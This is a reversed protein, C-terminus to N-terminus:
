RLLKKIQDASATVAVSKRLINVQMSVENVNKFDKVVGTLGVFPGSIIEVRTGSDIFDSIKFDIGLKSGKHIQNLDNLLEDENLVRLFTVIFGTILLERKQEASCKVFLYGPFLPKTFTVKRYKYVKTSNQLPLYYCIEKKLSYNALKKECRPKSYVVWWAEGEGSPELEGFLDEVEVPKNTAM